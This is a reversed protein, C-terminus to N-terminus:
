FDTILNLFNKDGDQYFKLHRHKFLPRVKTLNGHALVHVREWCIHGIKVKLNGRCLKRQLTKIVSFTIPLDKRRFSLLTQSSCRYRRNNTLNIHRCSCKPLGQIYTKGVLINRWGLFIPSGKTINQMRARYITFDDKDCTNM